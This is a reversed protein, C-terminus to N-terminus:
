KKLVFVPPEEYVYLVWGFSTQVNSILKINFTRNSIDLVGSVECLARKSSVRGFKIFLFCGLLFPLSFSDFFLSWLGPLSFLGLSNLWVKM